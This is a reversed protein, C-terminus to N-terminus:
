GLSVRARALEARVQEERRQDGAMSGAVLAADAAFDGDPAHRMYRMTVTPTTHGLLKQLRALPVGARAAHVGFTHRLDHVRCGAIGALGCIARWRRLAKWYQGMLDPFVPDNPESPHRVAHAALAEALPSPIPVNRDSAATKLRHFGGHVAIKRDVLRVDDWRLAQAEGIRMGTYILVAFLPWWGDSSALRAAEIETATLWRERGESEREKRMAPRQIALQKEDECYRLLSQIACLDRNVTQGRCRAGVRVRRYEAIAGKTLDAVTTDRGKPLRDFIQAWSVAYRRITQDAYRRRTRPSIGVPSRLWELWEDVVDGLMPSPQVAMMHVLGAPDRLYTAHVDLLSLRHSAILGLLDRRGAARLQKLTNVLEQAQKKRTTKTSLHIRPFGKWQVNIWFSSSDPRKYVSM